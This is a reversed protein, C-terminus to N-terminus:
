PGEAGLELFEEKWAHLNISKRDAGHRVHHCTRCLGVIKGPQQGVHHVHWEDIKDNGRGCDPCIYAERDHIEWWRKRDRARIAHTLEKGSATSNTAADGQGPASERM